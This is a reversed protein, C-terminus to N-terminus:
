NSLFLQLLDNLFARGKATPRIQQFDRELLGQTEAQNLQSEIQNLTLGTREYFLNVPFGAQLRLANLMFEFPLEKIAVEHSEQIAQRRVAQAMYHKPQKYRLQRVIRHPFSLKSHAGAGIGLYDGFEWYNSNHRSTRGPQAYASVEYHVYGAEATRTTILAQMDAALDDDPLVPPYRHFYTNPELTLHYISIHPPRYGLATEIDLACEALTQQPLAFMIDLNFNDFYKAAHAVAAHAQRDDHIRGLAQLHEPAFSQIGLSLRNIGATRFASFKEAEFTGPNAELTVEVDPGLGTLMRIDNLLQEIAAASFLSPTGGGIFVSHIKRGWILPLAQELDARLAQLYDAEPLAQQPLQSLGHSNFDCYPCKRVCWPLHVYLALPPLSKLQLPGPRLYLAALEASDPLSTPTADVTETTATTASQIPITPVPSM